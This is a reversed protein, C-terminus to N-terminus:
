SARHGVVLGVTLACEEAPALSMGQTRVLRFQEVSQQRAKRDIQGRGRRIECCEERDRDVVDAELDAEAAGLM